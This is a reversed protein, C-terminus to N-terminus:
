RKNYKEANECLEWANPDETDGTCYYLENYKKDYWWAVGDEDYEIEDEDSSEPVLSDMFDQVFTLDLDYDSSIRLRIGNQELTFEM